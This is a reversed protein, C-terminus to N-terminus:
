TNLYNEMVEKAGDERAERRKRHINNGDHPSASIDGRWEKDEM